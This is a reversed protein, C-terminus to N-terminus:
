RAALTDLLAIGLVASAGMLEASVFEPTDDPTHIRSFDGAAIFVAPVGAQMFSAHDSSAGEVPAGREVSIAEDEGNKLALGLLEGSGLLELNEGTGLADFNLM